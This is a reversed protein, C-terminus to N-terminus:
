SSDTALQYDSRTCQLPNKRTLLEDLKYMDPSKDSALNYHLSLKLLGSGLQLYQEQVKLAKLFAHVGEDGIRNVSIAFM